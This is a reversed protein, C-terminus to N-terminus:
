RVGGGLRGWVFVFVDVGFAGAPGGGEVDGDGLGWGGAEGCVCDM